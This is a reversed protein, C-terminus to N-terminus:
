ATDTERRRYVTMRRGDAKVFEARLLGSAGAVAQWPGDAQDDRPRPTQGGHESALM